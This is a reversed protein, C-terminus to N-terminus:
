ESSPSPMRVQAGPPVSSELFRRLELAAARLKTAADPESANVRSAELAHLLHIVDSLADCNERFSKRWQRCLTAAEEFDTTAAALDGRSLHVRSTRLLLTILGSLTEPTDGLSAQRQRLLTLAEMYSAAAAVLDGTSLHVDGRGALSLALVRRSADTDGTLSRAHQGVELAQDYSLSAAPIDGLALLARGLWTLAVFLDFLTKPNDGLSFCLRRCLVVSEEFCDFGASLNGQELLLGGLWGLAISLDRLAQPADGLSSRLQRCLSVCEKFCASASSLRGQAQLVGGLRNLAWSLDRLTQPTNGFSSRLQHCLTVSEEFAASAASLNGEVMLLDGLKNLAWSLDRLNQSNDGLLARLQRFFSVCEQSCAFSALLNGQALLADAHRELALALDRLTQPADGLTSRLQRFLSVSEAFSASAASLNGEALLVDGLGSLAVSLDRLAWPDDALLVRLQHATSVAESSATFAAALNGQDLLVGSLRNLADSLAHLTLLSDGQASSQKRWLEVLEELAGREVEPEQQESAVHALDGLLEMRLPDNSHAVLRLAEEFHELAAAVDGHMAEAKALEHLATVQNLPTTSAHARALERARRATEVAAGTEDSWLFGKVKRLLLEVIRPDDESTHELLRDSEALLFSADGPPQNEIRSHRKAWSSGLAASFTQQASSVLPLDVVLARISWLDSALERFLPKLPPAAALVLGGRLHRRLADRRENMRVVLDRWAQEWPRESGEGPDLNLAEVWICGATTAEPSLLFALVERLETPSQPQLRFFRTVQGRLLVAMRRSLVDTSRPSASFLFGLWFGEALEVQRRLRSWEAEGALGLGSESPSNM